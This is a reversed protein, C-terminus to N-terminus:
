EMSAIVQSLSPDVSEQNTDWVTAMVMFGLTASSFIWTNGGNGLYTIFAVIMLSTPLLAVLLQRMRRRALGQSLAIRALYASGLCIAHIAVWGILHWDELAFM